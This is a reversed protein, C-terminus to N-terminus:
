KDTQPGLQSETGSVNKKMKNWMYADINYLNIM